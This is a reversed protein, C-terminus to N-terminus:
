ARYRPLRSTLGAVIEYPIRGSARAVDIATLTRGESTGLLVVEDGVRADTETVDIVFQDMCVVGLIPCPRGRLLVHGAPRSTRPYGDGYGVPVIAARTPRDVVSTGGYSVPQGPRLTRIQTLTARISLAPHLRELLPHANDTPPIGYTLLGVRVLNHHAAPQTLTVLSNAAHTWRPSQPLDAHLIDIQKAFDAIQSARQSTQEDGWGVHTMLGELVVRDTQRIQDLLPAVDEPYIGVRGMGTDLKLHVHAHAGLAKAAAALPTIDDETSVVRSLTARVTDEAQAPLAAGLVVIPVTIDNERLTLGEAVTAVGLCAAGGEVAARAAEILGHGYGNAKVVSMVDVDPGVHESIAAVNSRIAARDIRVWANM